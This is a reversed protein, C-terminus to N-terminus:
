AQSKDDAGSLAARAEAIGRQGIEKYTKRRQSNYPASESPYEPFDLQEQSYIPKDDVDLDGSQHGESQQITSM